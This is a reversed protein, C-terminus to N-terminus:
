RKVIDLNKVHTGINLFSFCGSKVSLGREAVYFLRFDHRSASLLIRDSPPAATRVFMAFPLAIFSKASNHALPQKRIVVQWMMDPFHHILPCHSGVSFVSQSGTQVIIFFREPFSYDLYIILVQSPSEMQRIRGSNEGRLM